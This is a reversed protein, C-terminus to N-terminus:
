ALTGISDAAGGHPPMATVPESSGRPGDIGFVPSAM